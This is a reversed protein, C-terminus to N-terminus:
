NRRYEFEKELASLAFFDIFKINKITHKVPVIFCETMNVLKENQYIPIEQVEIQKEEFYYLGKKYTMILEIFQRDTKFEEIKIKDLGLGYMFGLSGFFRQKHLYPYIDVLKNVPMDNFKLAYKIIEMLNKKLNLQINIPTISTIFSDKTISLWEQSVKESNYYLSTQNKSKQKKSKYLKIDTIKKDSCWLFNIHPHFGTKYNYTIEVSYVGGLASFVTEYNREKYHSIKKRLKNFSHKLHNLVEQIDHSNKVTLVTFYWFYKNTDLINGYQNFVKKQTEITQPSAKFDFENNIIQSIDIKDDFISSDFFNLKDDFLMFFDELRKQIKSAKRSACFPCLLHVGCANSRTQKIEQNGDLFKAYEGWTNCSQLRKQKNPSYYEALMKKYKPTPKEAEYYTITGDDEIIEILQNYSSNIKNEIAFTVKKNHKRFLQFKETLLELSNLDDNNIYKSNKQIIM